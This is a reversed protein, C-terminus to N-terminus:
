KPSPVATRSVPRLVAWIVGIFLALAGFAVIILKKRPRAPRESPVAKDVVRIAFEQDAGAMMITRLTDVMVQAVAEQVAVAGGDNVRGQLYALRAEATKLAERRLRFDALAVIENAWRASTEADYWEVRLRLLASGKESVVEVRNNLATIARWQSNSANGLDLGAIGTASNKLLEAKIGDKEIFESLTELSSLTAKAVDRDTGGGGLNIGAISAIGSFQRSLGGLGGAQSVEKTALLVEAVYVPRLGVSIVTGLVVGSLLMVTLYKWRVGIRAIAESIPIDGSFENMLKSEVELQIMEKVAAAPSSLGACRLM